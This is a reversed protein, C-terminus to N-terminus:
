EPQFFFYHASYPVRAIAGPTTSDCGTKPAVGGVTELRLVTSVTPFRGHGDSAVAALRLWPISGPTPSPVRAVVRGVVLGRDDAWTPGAYHIGVAKGDGDNDPDEFLTASPAQFVWGGATCIYIQVGRGILDFGLSQGAPVDLATPLDPPLGESNDDDGDARAALPLSLLLATALAVIPNM